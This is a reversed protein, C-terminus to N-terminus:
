VVKKLEFEFEKLAEDYSQAQSNINFITREEDFSNGFNGFPLYLNHAHAILSQFKTSIDKCEYPSLGTDTGSNYVEDIEKYKKVLRTKLTEFNIRSSQYHELATCAASILPKTLEVLDTIQLIFEEKTVTHQTNFRSTILYGDNWLM